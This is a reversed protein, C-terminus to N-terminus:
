MGRMMGMGFIPVGLARTVLSVIVAIVIVAVVLAVIYIIAKDAAVSMVPSVGLYLVYLCYLAAALAILSGITGLFPLLGIVIGAVISPTMAYAILKLGQVLDDRGGFMPALKAAVFGMMGVMVLTVILKVIALQIAFSLLLGVFIMWGIITALAQAGALPIVYGIYLKGPDTSEGAITNWEKKPDMLIGMARTVIDM